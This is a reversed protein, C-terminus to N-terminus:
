CRLEGCVKLHNTPASLHRTSVLLLPRELGKPPFIHHVLNTADSKNKKAEPAKKSVLITIQCSIWRAQERPSHAKHGHQKQDDGVGGCGKNAM